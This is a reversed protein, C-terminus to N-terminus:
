YSHLVSLLDFLIGQYKGFDEFSCRQCLGFFFFLLQQFNVLLSTMFKSLHMCCRLEKIFSHEHYM